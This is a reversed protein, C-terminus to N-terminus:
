KVIEPNLIPCMGGLKKCTIENIFIGYENNKKMVENMRNWIDADSAYIKGYRKILEEITSLEIDYYNYNCCVSVKFLHSSVPRYKTYYGEIKIDPYSGCKTTVFNTGTKEICESIVELHNELFVDDHDLMCIYNYGESQAQKIGIKEANLGGCCWLDRGSYKEREVAVPLNEVYIKDESIIKSLEMFEENDTYNDGILFLKYDQHTQNKVSELTRKLHEYTSGNLKRYTPTVIGIKMILGNKEVYIM